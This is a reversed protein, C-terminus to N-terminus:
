VNGGGFGFSNTAAAKLDATKPNSARTIEAGSHFRLAIM